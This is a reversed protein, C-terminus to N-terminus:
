KCKSFLDKCFQGIILAMNIFILTGIVIINSWGIAFRTEPNSVFDTFLMFQYVVLINLAENTVEIRNLGKFFYLRGSAVYMTFAVSSFICLFLQILPHRPFFVFSVALLLRRFLQIPNYLLYWKEKYNINEYLTGYQKKFPALKERVKASHRVGFVKDAYSRYDEKTIVM